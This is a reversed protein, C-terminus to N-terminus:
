SQAARKKQPAAARVNTANKQILYSLTIIMLCTSVRYGHSTYFILVHQLRGYGRADRIHAGDHHGRTVYTLGMM